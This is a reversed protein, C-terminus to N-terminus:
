SGTRRISWAAAWLGLSMGTVRLSVRIRMYPFTRPLLDSGLLGHTLPGRGGALDAKRAQHPRDIAAEGRQPRVEGPSKDERIGQFSPHRLRGDRSWETFEVEAVLVPWYADCGDARPVDVFPSDDRSLPRLRTLLDWRMRATHGTGVGGTFRLKGRDNTAL